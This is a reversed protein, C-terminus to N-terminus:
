SGLQQCITIQNIKVNMRKLKIERNETIKCKKRTPFNRKVNKLLFVQKRPIYIIKLPQAHSETFPTQFINKQSCNSHFALPFQKQENLKETSLNIRPNDM